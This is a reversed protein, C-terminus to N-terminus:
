ATPAKKFNAGKKLVPIKGINKFSAAFSSKTKVLISAM